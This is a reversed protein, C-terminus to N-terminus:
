VLSDYLKFTRSVVEEWSPILKSANIENQMREFKDQNDSLEIMYQALDQADKFYFGTQDAILQNLNGGVPSALNITNGLFVGEAMSLSCGEYFSANIQFSYKKYIERVELWPLAGLNVVGEEQLALDGGMVYLHIEPNSKRAIRLAELITPFRKVKDSFRGCFI